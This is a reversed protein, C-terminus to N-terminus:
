RGETLETPRPFASPLPDSATRQSAHLKGMVRFFKEWRWYQLARRWQAVSRFKLASALRAERPVRRALRFLPHEGHTAFQRDRFMGSIWVTDVGWPFAFFFWAVQSCMVYRAAAASAPTAASVQGRGCGPAVTIVLNSDPVHIDFGPRRWLAVRNLPNSRLQGLWDAVAQELKAAEIPAPPPDVVMRERDQQYRALAEASRFRGATSDWRDGPYMFEVGPLGLGAIRAPTNMWANMRRNEASCFYVFSAFPVTVAPALVAMRERLQAITREAEGLEDHDNGVWSAFSFQNFLVSVAGIARKLYRVQYRNLVCDNLNLVCTQEDRIALFSDTDGVSGCYLQVQPTLAHWRYLPLEIVHPFGLARLAEVIRPSAHQQYLVRIRQKDADPIQRLTPFHLHDPHEHSIWVYDIADFAVPAPPSLLAWGNNFVKGALWPDCLITAGHTEVLLSAHGIFQVQM